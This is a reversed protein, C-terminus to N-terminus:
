TMCKWNQGAANNDSKLIYKGKCLLRVSVPEYWGNIDAYDFHPLYIERQHDTALHTEVLAPPSQEITEIIWGFKKNWM